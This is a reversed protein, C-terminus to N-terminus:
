YRKTINFLTYAFKIKWLKNEKLSLTCCNYPNFLQFKKTYMYQLRMNHEIIFPKNFQWLDYNQIWLIFFTSLKPFTFLDLFWWFRELNTMPTIDFDLTQNKSAQLPLLNAGTYLPCFTLDPGFYHALRFTIM